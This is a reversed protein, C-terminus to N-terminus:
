SFNSYNLIEMNLAEAIQKEIRAGKSNEWDPLLFVADCTMMGKICDRMANEWTATEEIMVMPNWTYWGKSLLLDMAAKFKRICAERPEGTVKGAIYITKM